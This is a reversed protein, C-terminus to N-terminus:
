EGRREALMRAFLEGQEIADDVAVHTHPRDSFWRPPMNRKVADRYPVRLLCMAYTKVDLASHSFPNEGVFRVLYWHVFCFDYAAPYGVFVPRGPLGRVWADFRRMAEEAPVLDRRCADWADKQTAWWEMTRPHGTAGPLTDLNESFTGLLVGADDFAAAGLSLMSHPGPIPGDAEIDVSVYVERKAM